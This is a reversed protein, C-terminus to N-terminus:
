CPASLPPHFGAAGETLAQAGGAIIHCWHDEETALLLPLVVKDM